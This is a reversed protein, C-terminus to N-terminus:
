NFDFDNIKNDIRDGSYIGNSVERVPRVNKVEVLDLPLENLFYYDIDKNEEQSTAQSQNVEKIKDRFLFEPSSRWNGDVTYDIYKINGSDKIDLVIVEDGTKTYIFKDGKKIEGNYKETAKSAHLSHIDRYIFLQDKARTMAVYLCRREEEIADIGNQISRQSPYANPSVNVIYCNKAELGKASHITTLIVCDEVKNGNKQTIDLKPDLIYEAIFESINSSGFAVDELVPFDSKRWEWEEKYIEKMRSSTCEVAKKIALSPNNQLGNLISLVNHAEIPAKTEKIKDICEELSFCQVMSEVIKAATIDGVGKWLQLFRMWALEDMYNSIIRLVSVIDRVHRSQMLGIGGFVCYPIKRSLCYGEVKKLGYLSRSLVMNDSYRGGNNISEIIKQRLVIRKM